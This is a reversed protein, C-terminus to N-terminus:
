RVVLKRTLAAATTGIRVVYIGPALADLRLVTESGRRPAEIRRHLVQAGGAAYVAIDAYSEDNNFLIRWNEAGRYLSVPAATNLTEHIGDAANALVLAKRLGEYADIKGFGTRKNWEDQGTYLDHQSTTRLIEVVQEYTLSPNAQLWLAVIGAVAPSAMSTGNKVGYFDNKSATATAYLAAKTGDTASVASTITVASKDFDTYKNVPANITAGPAAVTPKPEKGLSPGRSSFSSVARTLGVSSFKYVGNDSASVFTDAGNYSAVAIANPINAAGDSVLYEDDPSVDTATLRVFEGGGNDFMAAWAHFGAGEMGQIELGLFTNAAGAIGAAKALDTLEVYAQYHEKENNPNIEGMIRTKWFTDSLYNKAGTLKNYVFPKVKLTQGKGAATGWIDAFAYPCVQERGAADQYKNNLLLTKFENDSKFTYSAHIKLGGENGMAAVMLAGPGTMRNMALDYDTTGDHPGLQSGFSMNIVFPKGQEEALTKIFRAEELIDADEFTSPVFVIDADPAMGYFDNGAIRSGAAIGAVHTAHGDVGSINDGGRAPITTTPEQRGNHNWLGVIRTAGGNNRFAIHDYQFGQDIIGVVVDKGTFPTDLKDGDHAKDANSYERATTMLPRMRRALSIRRVASLAALQELDAAAVGATITSADIVKAAYGRANLTDAVAKADDATIIVALTTGADAAARSAQARLQMGDAERQLALDLKQGRRLEVQAPLDTASLAACVMTLLLYKKM